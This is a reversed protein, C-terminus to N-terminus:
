FQQGCRDSRVRSTPHFSRLLQGMVNRVARSLDKRAPDQSLCRMDTSCRGASNVGFMHSLIPVFHSQNAINRCRLAAAAHSRGGAERSSSPRRPLSEGAFKPALALWGYSGCCSGQFVPPVPGRAAGFRRPPALSAERRAPVDSYPLGDTSCWGAPDANEAHRLTACFPANELLKLASCRRTKVKGSRGSHLPRVSAPHGPFSPMACESHRDAFTLEAPPLAPRNRPVSVSGVRRSERSKPKDPFRDCKGRRALERAVRTLV